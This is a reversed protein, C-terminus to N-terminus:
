EISPFFLGAIPKTEKSLNQQGAEFLAPQLSLTSHNSHFRTPM